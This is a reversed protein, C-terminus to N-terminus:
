REDMKRILDNPVLPSTITIHVHSGPQAFDRREGDPGTIEKITDMQAPGTRPLVEITDGRFFKNRAEVLTGPASTKELVKALFTHSNESEARHNMIEQGPDGFYFGTCYGRHSIHQLETKWRPDAVYADPNEYYADIAERYTKVVAGVYHIGKMRGEIKLSSIGAEIMERIHDIMCLDRSNFIYTGSADESVPFFEGPRKEEMVAYKFRCPHCCMGQNSPRGAMFNSLLCRGSYSVCMAGHVFAEVEIDTNEGIQRIEALSLERAVNCRGAGLSEWFRVTDYNTTNAQTSIHIPTAPLYKKAAMLIAPDAVIVADPQIDSLSKLFAQMPKLDQNKPYINCAVYVKTHHKHAFAVAEDMEALSFNGSFNRLSFSKGALYVADAGYHVAIELKEFNGAPALLEVKKDASM